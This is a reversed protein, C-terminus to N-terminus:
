VDTRIESCRLGWSLAILMGFAVVFLVPSSLTHYYDIGTGAGFAHAVWFLSTVRVLNALLAAPLAAAVLVARAWIPGRVIYGFLIALTVLSVLSRLGSCPAGVVFDTGALSVQSGINTAAVGTRQVALTATHAIFAELPPSFREIWPLPIAAALFLLPFALRRVAARGWFTWIVGALVAILGLASVVFLQWPLAALHLGLGAAILALGANDPRPEDFVARRRWVLVGSVLPVLFGHSYYPDGLWSAALGNLTPWFLLGLLAALAVSAVAVSRPKM